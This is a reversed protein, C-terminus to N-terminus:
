PAERWGPTYIPVPSNLVPPLGATVRFYGLLGPTNFLLFTGLRKMGRCGPYAGAQHAVQSTHLSKKKYYFFCFIDKNDYEEERKRKKTTKRSKAEKKEACDGQDKVAEEQESVASGAEKVNSLTVIDRCGMVADIEDFHASKRLHGGTQKSNTYWDKCIKYRGILYKIKKHFKETARKTGYKLNIRDFNGAWLNIVMKEENDSWREYSQKGNDVPEPDPSSQSSSCSSSTSSAQSASPQMSRAPLANEQVISAHSTSPHTERGTMDHCVLAYHSFEMSDGYFGQFQAPNYYYGRGNM